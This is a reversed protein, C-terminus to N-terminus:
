ATWVHKILKRKGNHKRAWVSGRWLNIGMAWKFGSATPGYVQKFRKGYVDVGTVEFRAVDALDIEITM